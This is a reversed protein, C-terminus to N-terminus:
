AMRPEPWRCKHEAIHQWYEHWAVRVVACSEITITKLEYFLKTNGSDTIKGLANADNAYTNAAINVNRLLRLREPCPYPSRAPQSSQLVDM